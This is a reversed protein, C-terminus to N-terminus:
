LTTGTKSATSSCARTRATITTPSSRVRLARGTTGSAMCAVRTLSVSICCAGGTLSGVVAGNATVSVRGSVIIYFRDDIEGEKVIDEGDRNFEAWWRALLGHHWIRVGHSM